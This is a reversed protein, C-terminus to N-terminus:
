HPDDPRPEPHCREFRHAAAVLEDVRADDCPAVDDDDFDAEFPGISLLVTARGSRPASM